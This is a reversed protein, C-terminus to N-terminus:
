YPKGLKTCPECGQIDPINERRLLTTDLEMPKHRTPSLQISTQMRLQEGLCQQISFRIPFNAQEHHQTLQDMLTTLLMIQTTENSTPQTAYDLHFLSSKRRGLEGVLIDYDFSKLACSTRDSRTLYHIRSDRLRTPAYILQTHEHFIRLTSSRHRSTTSPLFIDTARETVVLRTSQRAPADPSAQGCQNLPQEARFFISKSPEQEQRHKMARLDNMTPKRTANSSVTRAM